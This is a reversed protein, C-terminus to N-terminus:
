KQHAESWPVIGRKRSLAIVMRLRFIGCVLRYWCNQYFLPVQNPVARVHVTWAESKREVDQDRPEKRGQATIQDPALM